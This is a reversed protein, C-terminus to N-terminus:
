LRVYNSRRRQKEFHKIAYYDPRQILKQIFLRIIDGSILKQIM